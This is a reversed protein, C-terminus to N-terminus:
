IFIGVLIEPTPNLFNLSALNVMRHISKTARIGEFWDSSMKLKMSGIPEHLQAKPFDTFNFIAMRSFAQLYLSIHIDRGKQLSINSVCIRQM